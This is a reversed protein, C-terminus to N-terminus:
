IDFMTSNIPYPILVLQHSRATGSINLLEFRGGQRLKPFIGSLFEGFEEPNTQSGSSLVCIVTLTDLSKLTVIRNSDYIVICYLVDM